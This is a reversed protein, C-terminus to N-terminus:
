VEFIFHITLWLMFLALAIRAAPHKTANWVTESFTDDRERRAIAVTEAVGGITLLTFWFSAWGGTTFALVAFLATAAGSVAPGIYRSM